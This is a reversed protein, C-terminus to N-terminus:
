SSQSNDIISILEPAEPPEMSLQPPIPFTPKQVAIEREILDFKHKNYESAKIKYKGPDVETVSQVRYQMRGANKFSNINLILDNTFNTIASLQNTNAMSSGSVDNETIEKNSIRMYTGSRGTVTRINYVSNGLTITSGSVNNGAADRIHFVDSNESIREINYVQEIGSQGVPATVIFSKSSMQKLWGGNEIDGGLRMSKLWGGATGQQYQFDNIDTAGDIEILFQLDGFGLGQASKQRVTVIRKSSGLSQPTINVIKYRGLWPSKKYISDPLEEGGLKAHIKTLEESNYEQMSESISRKFGRISWVAGVSLNLLNTKTKELPNLLNSNVVYYYHEGGPIEPSNGETEVQFGADEFTVGDLDFSHRQQRPDSIVVTYEVGSNIGTPLRGFSSFSIKDNNKLGHSDAQVTGTGVIPKFKYKSKLDYVSNDEQSLFGDFYLIQPRSLGSIMSMQEVADFNEFDASLEFMKKYLGTKNALRDSEEGVVEYGRGCLVTLEVPNRTENPSGPDYFSLDNTVKDLKVKRLESDISKIRGNINEGYRRSDSIEIISGPALLSAELGTEFTVFENELNPALVTFKALRRAQGKSTCGVALIEDLKYGFKDIGGSDEYYEVKSRFNDFKDAYRVKCATIRSTRPSGAYSFGEEGVNADTFIMVPDKKQESAFSVKGASYAVVTRFVTCIEKVARLAEEKEKFLMNATFRPEVIPHNIAMVCKGTSNGQNVGSKVTAQSQWFNPGILTIEKESKNVSVVTREEISGDSMFFSISKGLCYGAEQSGLNFETLFDDETFNSETIKIKFNNKAPDSSLFVEKTQPSSTCSFSRKPNELPFGTEVLEDCFKAAALLRWIDIDQMSFGFTGVGYRRNLLIDALIWAPNDTWELDSEKIVGYDINSKSQGKFLGEWAGYYKRSIPNYNSPLPVKKLKAVFNREPLSPFNVADFPIKVCAVGPHSYKIPVGMLGDMSTIASLSMKKGKERLEKSDKIENTERCVTLVLNESPGFYPLGIHIDLGAPSTAIGKVMLSSHDTTGCAYIYGDAGLVRFGEKNVSGYEKYTQKKILPMLDSYHRYAASSSSVGTRLLLLINVLIEGSSTLKDANASDAYDVDIADVFGKSTNGFHHSSNITLNAGIAKDFKDMLNFISSCKSFIDNRGFFIANAFMETLAQKNADNWPLPDDVYDKSSLFNGVRRQHSAETGWNTGGEGGGWKTKKPYILPINAAGDKLCALVVIEQASTGSTSKSRAGIGLFGRRVRQDTWNHFLQEPSLTIKLIQTYNRTVPYSFVKAGRLQLSNIRAPMGGLISKSGAIEKEEPGPLGSSSSNESEGVVFFPTSGELSKDMYGVCGSPQIDDENLLFNLTNTPHNMVVMDSILISKLAMNNNFTNYGDIIGDRKKGAPNGSMDCLGGIPGESLVDYVNYTTFTEIAGGSSSGSKDKNTRNYSITNSGIKLMGYGVPVPAGQKTTNPRDDFLYSKTTRTRDSVKPAPFLLNAIGSIAIPALFNFAMKSFSTTKAMKAMAKAGKAILKMATVFKGDIIPVIHIDSDKSRLNLSEGHCFIESLLNEDFEDNLIFQEIKEAQSDGISAIAFGDGNAALEFVFQQFKGDTNCDIATVAESPTQVNLEWEYGFRDGFTGHLFVKKM